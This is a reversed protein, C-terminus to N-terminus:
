VRRLLFAYLRRGMGAVTGYFCERRRLGARQRKLIDSSPQLLPLALSGVQPKTAIRRRATDKRKKGLIDLFIVASLISSRGILDIEASLTRFSYGAKSKNQATQSLNM